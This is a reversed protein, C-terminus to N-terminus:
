FAYNVARTHQAIEAETLAYGNVASIFECDPGAADCQVAITAGRGTSSAPNIIFIKM